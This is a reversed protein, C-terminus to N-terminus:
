APPQEEEPFDEELANTEEGELQRSAQNQMQAAQLQEAVRVFPTVLSNPEKGLADEIDKAMDVSSFHMRVEPDAALM